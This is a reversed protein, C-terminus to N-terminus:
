ARSPVQMAGIARCRLELLDRDGIAALQFIIKALKLRAAERSGPDFNHAISAWAYEFVTNLARLGDPDYVESHGFPMTIRM